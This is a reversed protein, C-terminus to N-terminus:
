LQAHPKRGSSRQLLVFIAIAATLAYQTSAVGTTAGKTHGGSQPRLHLILLRLSSSVKLARIADDIFGFFPARIQDHHPRLPAAADRGRLLSGASRGNPSPRSM